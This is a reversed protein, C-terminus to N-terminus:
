RKKLFKFFLLFTESKVSRRLLSPTASSFQLNVAVSFYVTCMLSTARSFSNICCGLTTHNCPKLQVLFSQIPGNERECECMCVRLSQLCFYGCNGFSVPLQMFTDTDPKLDGSEVPLDKWSCKRIFSLFSFAIFDILGFCFLCTCLCLQFFAALSRTKQLGLNNSCTLM